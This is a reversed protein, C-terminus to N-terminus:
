QPPPPVSGPAGGPNGTGDLSKVVQNMPDAEAERKKMEMLDSVEQPTLGSKAALYEFPFGMQSKKLLADALQAESRFEEDAWISRGARLSDAKASNGRALEILASAERIAAGFWLQKEQTRKVLGGEAAILADSSLNALKGILYHQPTRSQAAIHGIAVEIVETYATLNTESFEALKANEDTIFMIRDVAFKELDVPRDGIVEGHENLIPVMPREAGLIVRQKFSAYDAATFLMAWLLNLSDQMSIVGTVDSIPDGILTPKNQLEVMPVVGMPNPQPNIEDGTTATPRPAWKKLEEDVAASTATKTMQTLSRELKWVEKPLYLTAYECDGDQWTKLAAKRIRRSGAAYAVICQSADEFTVIPNAEDDPNGWVLVFSRASNIAGLFGLQSDVDCGNMQWTRWIDKDPELEGNAQIGLWTLREVPADSVLPVWNDSFGRYRDAHYKAFEDSAYKLKHDGRYYRDIIDIAPRRNILEDYMADVLATAEEITAM